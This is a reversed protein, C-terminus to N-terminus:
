GGLTKKGTASQTLLDAGAGTVGGTGSKVTSMLGYRMSEVKRRKKETTQASIESPVPVPTPAPAPL